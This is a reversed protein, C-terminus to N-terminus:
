SGTAVLVGSDQYSCQMVAFCATLTGAIPLLWAWHRMALACRHLKSCESVRGTRFM